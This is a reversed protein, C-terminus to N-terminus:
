LRVTSIMTVETLYIHVYNIFQHPICDISFGSLISWYYGGVGGGFFTVSVLSYVYM